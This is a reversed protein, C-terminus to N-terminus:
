KKESDMAKNLEDHKEILAIAKQAFRKGLTKYGEISYHISNSAGNLDDTDVWAGRLSAEAVEVQSKRVMTWHPWQENNFDSLRGIVFNIDKRGLDDALQGILGKLSDAYVEGHKERADREGQMWVLTVTRIKRGKIEANVKRMLHDYLAANSRPKKDQLPKWEKYWRRIPEGRHADKVVIVNDKGFAAEVTPIFSVCPNLRAMNSQGSLVFLHQEEGEARVFPVSM